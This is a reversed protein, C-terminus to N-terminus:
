TNCNRRSSSRYKGSRRSLCTKRRNFEERRGELNRHRERSLGMQITITVVVTVIVVEGAKIERSKDIIYRCFKLLINTPM